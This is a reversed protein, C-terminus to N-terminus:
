KELSSTMVSGVASRMDGALAEWDARLAQLDAEEPTDSENYFTMNGAFDFIRSVGEIFSPEAVLYLSRIKGM